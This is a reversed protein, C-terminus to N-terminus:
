QEQSSGKQLRSANEPRMITPFLGRILNYVDQPVDEIMRLWHVRCHYKCIPQGKYLWPFHIHSRM